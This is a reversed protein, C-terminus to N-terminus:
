IPIGILQGILKLKELQKHHHIMQLLKQEEFGILHVYMAPYNTQKPRLSIQSASVHVPLFTNVPQSLDAVFVIKPAKFSTLEDLNYGGGM